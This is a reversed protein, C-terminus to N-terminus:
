LWVRLAVVDALERGPHQAAADAHVKRPLAAGHPERNEEARAKDRLAPGSLAPLAGDLSRIPRELTHEGEAEQVLSTGTGGTM